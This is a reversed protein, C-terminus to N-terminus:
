HSGSREVVFDDSEVLFIILQGDYMIYIAPCECVWYTYSCVHVNVKCSSPSRLGCGANRLTWKYTIPNISTVTDWPLFTYHIHMRLHDLYDKGAVLAVHVYVIVCCCSVVHKSLSTAILAKNRYIICGYRGQSSACLLWVSPGDVM